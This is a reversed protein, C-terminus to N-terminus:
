PQSRRLHQSLFDRVRKESDATAASDYKLTHGLYQRGPGHEAQDFAHYAGPYVTWLIPRGARQLQEASVVCLRPPTWDDAEGLLLLVPIATDRSLYSCHPYFAVAVRFGGGQPQARSALGGSSARLAAMAGYSWGMVGIRDRHVFPLSRLYALAGFADVAVEDATPNRGERCVNRTGRPSFSDVALAVYGQAKLWAAWDLVHKQLGGCTHLLAMAPFPGTGEPRYLSGSLTVTEAPSASPFHVQSACGVLLLVLGLAALRM